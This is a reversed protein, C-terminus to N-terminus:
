AEGAAAAAARLEKLRAEGKQGLRVKDEGAPALMKEMKYRRLVGIADQNGGLTRWIAKFQETTIVKHKSVEILIGNVLNKGRKGPARGRADSAGNAARKKMNDMDVHFSVVGPTKHLLRMLPGLAVEEVEIAVKLTHSAM